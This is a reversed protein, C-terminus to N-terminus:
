FRFQYSAALSDFDDILADDGSGSGYGTYDLRFAGNPGTAYEIGVGIAGGELEIDQATGLAEVKVESSHVGLRAVLNLRESVPVAVRGFVAASYEASVDYPIGVFSETRESVGISGEAEVGWYNASQYGGRAQVGFTEDFPDYAVAGLDVYGYPARATGRQLGRPLGGSVGHPAANQYGDYQPSAGYGAPSYGGPACAGLGAVVTAVLALKAGKISGVCM